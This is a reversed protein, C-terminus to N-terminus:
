GRAGSSVGSSRLAPFLPATLFMKLGHSRKSLLPLLSPASNNGCHKLL